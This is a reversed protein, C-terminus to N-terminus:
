LRLEQKSCGPEGRHLCHANGMKRRSIAFTPSRVFPAWFLVRVEVGQSGSPGAARGLERREDNEYTWRVQERPSLGRREEGLWPSSARRPQGEGLTITVAGDVRCQSEAM